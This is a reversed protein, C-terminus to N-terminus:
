ETNSKKERVKRWQAHNKKHDELTVAFVHGGSGDAVFYLYPVSAPRAVAQLTELSPNAIPFPPLGVNLYTNYVHQIKLDQRTLPHGLGEKGKTLGYIVTPDAQLPMGQKLRNLFVATVIPKEKSHATEKEVISALVLLEQSSSLLSDAARGSWVKALAKGMAKKMHENIEQCATHRPFYYTEPLLSGETPVEDCVGQFRSDQQLKQFFHQSTEGEILTVPHLIVEGSKLIHALRAPTVSAPVLYEGAKLHRWGGTGFLIGKFLFPFDLVHQQSLLNVIRSFPAGKELIVVTVKNKQPHFFWYSAGVVFLCPIITFFGLFSFFVSKHKVSFPLLTPKLGRM